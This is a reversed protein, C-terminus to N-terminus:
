GFELSMIVTEMDLLLFVGVVPEGKTCKFLAFLPLQRNAYNFISCMQHAEAFQSRGATRRGSTRSGLTGLYRLPSYYYINLGKIGFTECYKKKIETSIMNYRQVAKYTELSHTKHYFDGEYDVVTQKLLRDGNESTVCLLCLTLQLESERRRMKRSRSRFGHRPYWVTLLKSWKKHMYRDRDM